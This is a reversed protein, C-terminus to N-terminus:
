ASWRDDTRNNHAAHVLVAIFTTTPLGRPNIFCARTTNNTLRTRTRPPPPRHVSSRLPFSRCSLPRYVISRRNALRNVSTTSPHCRSPCFCASSSSSSSSYLSFSLCLCLSLSLTHTISDAKKSLRRSTRRCSHAILTFLSEAQEDM